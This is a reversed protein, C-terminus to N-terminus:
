YGAGSRSPGHKEPEVLVDQHAWQQGQQAPRFHLAQFINRVEARYDQGTIVEGDRVAEVQRQHGQFTADGGQSLGLVEGAGAELALQGLEEVGRGALHRDVPRIRVGRM